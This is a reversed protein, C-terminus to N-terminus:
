SIRELARTILHEKDNRKCWSKVSAPISLSDLTADGTDDLLAGPQKADEVMVRVLPVGGSNAMAQEYDEKSCIVDVVDFSPRANTRSNEKWEIFKEASRFVRYEPMGEVPIDHWKNEVDWAIYRKKEGAESRDTQYPAGIYFVNSGLKQPCHFHGLLVRSFEDAHLDGLSLGSTSVSVGIKAGEVDQHLVLVKPGYAKEKTAKNIYGRVKDLDTTFAHCFLTMGGYDRGLEIEKSTAVVDVHPMGNFVETSHIRGDRLWQDHNGVVIIVGEIEKSIKHIVRHVESLVDLELVKRNDFLDGNIVVIGKNSVEAAQRISEVASWLRSNLGKYEIGDVNHNEAQVDATFVVKKLSMITRKKTTSVPQM